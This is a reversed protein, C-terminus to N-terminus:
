SSYIALMPVQCPHSEQGNYNIERQYIGIEAQVNRKYCYKLHHHSGVVFLRHLSNVDTSEM